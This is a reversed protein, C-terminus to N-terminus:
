QSIVGATVDNAHICVYVSALLSEVIKETKRIEIDSGLNTWAGRTKKAISSCSSMRMM